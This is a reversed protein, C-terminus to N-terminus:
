AEKRPLVISSEAKKGNNFEHTLDIFEGHLKKEADSLLCADDKAKKKGGKKARHQAAIVQKRVKATAEELLGLDFLASEHTYDEPIDKGVNDVLTYDSCYALYLLVFDVEYDAIGKPTPLDLLERIAGAGEERMSDMISLNVDPDIEAGQTMEGSEGGDFESAM